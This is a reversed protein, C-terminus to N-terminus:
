NLSSLVSTSVEIETKVAAFLFPLPEDEHSERDYETPSPVSPEENSELEVQVADM